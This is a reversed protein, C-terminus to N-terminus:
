KKACWCIDTVYPMKYVKTGQLDPHNTLIDRVKAETSRRDEESSQYIASFCMMVAVIKDIDGELYTRFETNREVPTFKGSKDLIEMWQLERPDGPMDKQKVFPDVIDQLARVWSFSFDEHNWIMGFKGGPKLVRCIENVSKEDSFWHFAQACIIVSIFEDPLDINDAPFQRIETEPLFRRLVECMALLRDSAIIEVNAKRLTLVEVMARTFKGTGAAIELLKTPEKGLSPLVGVRCLLFEVSEKTYNPRGKEYLSVDTSYERTYERVGINSDTVSAM